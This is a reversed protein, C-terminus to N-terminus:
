RRERIVTESIPEGDIGIPQDNPDDADCQKQWRRIDQRIRARADRLVQETDLRNRSASAAIRTSDIAVHGLRGLGSARALEAAACPRRKGRDFSQPGRRPIRCGEM